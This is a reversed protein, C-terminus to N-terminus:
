TYGKAVLRAKYRKIGGDSKRKIKYVWRCGVAKKDAPLDTLTWTLNQELASIETEMAKAKIWNPNKSAHTYNSPEVESSIQNVYHKFQESCHTYDVYKHRPYLTRETSFHGCIYDQLKVPRKPDRLSRRVPVTDCVIRLNDDNNMHEQLDDQNIEEQTTSTIHVEDVDINHNIPFYDPDEADHKAFVDYTPVNIDKKSQTDINQTNPFEKYPFVAEKFTIDRSVHISHTTLDFVKYGKQKFPYGLFVCPRARPDFKTKGPFIDTMFCLCGFTKLNEYTPKVSFLVEYSSRGQLIRLPIRNIVYTATLM